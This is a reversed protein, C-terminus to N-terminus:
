NSHKVVIRGHVKGKLILNIKDELLELTCEQVIEDFSNIKWDGALHDWIKLRSEMPCWASDIGLLKVGRLIFPFVTTNLEHSAVLGCVAVAGRHKTAKLASALYNGGVTDVVGAWRSKLLPDKSKDLIEDRHIVQKAGLQELFGKQDLKGTAAVVNYGSKSLIAVALCGVGGTAGTVLIEGNEPVIDVKEFNFLCQGATFGATGYSMCEKLSLKNPKKVVWDVPVRIYEGYGGDTNSGLEYGTVIVEDGIRFKQGDGETVIGAADVGPTHPYKKTVGKNGIASLADKYNLSSYKVQILVEGPPLDHIDKEEIGRLFQHDSTERVVLAKFKM